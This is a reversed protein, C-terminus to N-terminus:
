VAALDVVLADIESATWSALATTYPAGTFGLAIAAKALEYLMLGAAYSSSTGKYALDFDVLGIDTASSIFDAEAGHAEFATVESEFATADVMYHDIIYKVMYSQKSQGSPILELTALQGAYQSTPKIEGVGRGTGGLVLRADGQDASQPNAPTVLLRAYPQGKWKAFVISGGFKGAAEVSFLAGKTKAM